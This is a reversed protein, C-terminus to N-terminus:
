LSKRTPNTSGVRWVSAAQMAQRSAPQALVHLAATHLSHMALWIVHGAQKVVPRPSFSHCTKLRGHEAQLLLFMVHSRTSSKLVEESMAESALGNRVSFLRRASSSM